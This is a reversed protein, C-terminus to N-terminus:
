HRIDEWLGRCATGSRRRWLTVPGPHGSGCREMRRQREGGPIRVRGDAESKKLEGNPQAAEVPVSVAFFFASQLKVSGVNRLMMVRPALEM